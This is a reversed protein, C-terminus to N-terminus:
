SGVAPHSDRGNHEIYVFFLHLCRSLPQQRFHYNESYGLWHISEAQVYMYKKFILTGYRSSTTGSWSIAVLLVTLMM